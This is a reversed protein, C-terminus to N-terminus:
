MLEMLHTAPYACYVNDKALMDNVTQILMLQLVCKIIVQQFERQRAPSITLNLSVDHNEGNPAICIILM